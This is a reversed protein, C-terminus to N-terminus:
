KEGSLFYAETLQVPLLLAALGTISTDSTYWAVWVKYKSAITTTNWKADGSLENKSAYMIPTYGQKYIEGLFAMAYNSRDDKSLGYQRSSSNEFGECNYGVPYTIPYQAIYSAVWDAEEIAEATSTATSFFYAGIKIGNKEAEQMNYRANSDAKIEGTVSDRYGVRIMAFNIGSGAVQAWDITGQFKSVDIGFTMTATEGVNSASVVDVVNVTTGTEQTASAQPDAGESDDAEEEPGVVEIQVNADPDEEPVEEVEPEIEEAVEIPEEEPKNVHKVILVTGIILVVAALSAGIIILKQKNM